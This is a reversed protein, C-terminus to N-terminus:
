IYSRNQLARSYRSEFGSDEGFLAVEITNRKKTSCTKIYISTGRQFAQLKKNKQYLMHKKHNNYKGLVHIICMWHNSSLKKRHHQHVVNTHWKCLFISLICTNQSLFLVRNTQRRKVVVVSEADKQRKRKLVPRFINTRYTYTRMQLTCACLISYSM